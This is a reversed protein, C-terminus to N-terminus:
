ASRGKVIARGEPGGCALLMAVCPRVLVVQEAQGILDPGVGDLDVGVAQAANEGVGAGRHLDM